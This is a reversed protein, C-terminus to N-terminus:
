AAPLPLFKLEPMPFDRVNDTALALNFSLAVAAIILVIYWWIMPFALFAFLYFSGEVIVITSIGGISEVTLWYHLRRLRAYEAALQEDIQSIQRSIADRRSNLRTIEPSTPLATPEEFEANPANHSAIEVQVSNFRGQLRTREGRLQQELTLPM